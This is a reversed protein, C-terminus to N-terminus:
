RGAPDGGLEAVRRELEGVRAEVEYLRRVLTFNLRVQDEVLDPALYQRRISDVRLLQTADHSGFLDVAKQDAPLRGERLGPSNSKDTGIAPQDVARSLPGGREDVQGVAVVEPMKAVM